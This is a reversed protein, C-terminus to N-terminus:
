PNIAAWLNSIQTNIDDLQTQIDSRVNGLYSVADSNIFNNFNTTLATQQDKVSTIETMVNTGGVTLTPSAGSVTVSRCTLAWTELDFLKSGFPSLWNSVNSAEPIGEYWRIESNSYMTAHGGSPIISHFAITSGTVPLEVFTINTAEIPSDVGGSMWDLDNAIIGRGFLTDRPYLRIQIRDNFTLQGVWHIHVTEEVNQEHVIQHSGAIQTGNRFLLVQYYSHQYLSYTITVIIAASIDWYGSRPIIFRGKSDFIDPGTATLATWMNTDEGNPNYGIPPYTFGDEDAAFTQNEYDWSRTLKYRYREGNPVNMSNLQGQISSHVGDLYAVETGSVNVPWDHLGQLSPLFQLTAGAPDFRHGDQTAPTPVDVDVTYISFEPIVSFNTIVHDTNLEGDPVGFDAVLGSVKVYQGVRVDDYSDDSREISFSVTLSGNYFDLIKIPWKKSTGGSNDIQEQINGTVGELYGVETGSVAIPWDHLGQLSPLVRLKGQSLPFKDVDQNPATALTVTFIHASIDSRLFNYATVQHITNLEEDPVGFDAVLDSIVIFQGARSNELPDDVVQYEQDVIQFKQQVFFNFSTNGNTGSILILPRTDSSAGGGANNIQEQINSTVGDLYGVETSNVASPWDTIDNLAVSSLKNDLQSQIDNIDASNLKNDLQSQINYKVGDLYQLEEYKYKKINFSEM